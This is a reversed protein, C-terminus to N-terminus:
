PVAPVDPPEPAFAASPPLRSPKVHPVPPRPKAAVPRSRPAPTAAVVNEEEATLTEEIEATDLDEEAALDAEDESMADEEALDEADLAETETLEDETMEDAGSEDNDAYDDLDAEESAVQTAPAARIPTGPMEYDAATVRTAQIVIPQKPLHKSFPGASGTPINQMRALVNMGKIVKGFVTYGWGSATKDQHDLLENDNLNIFFQSSASHPGRGRAMAVTGRLNQLGNHAESAIPSRLGDEKKSYDELYGGGQLMYNKILRHFIVGEYFNDRAYRLFNDVTKPAAEPYLELTISGLNTQIEVQPNEAAATAALLLLWLGVLSNLLKM